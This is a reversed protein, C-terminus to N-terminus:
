ATLISEIADRLPGIKFPKSLVPNSVRQLFARTDPSVTDGTIFIMRRALAPDKARVSRYFSAGDMGPMKMDTIIIDFSAQEVLEQAELGSSALSVDHRDLVLIDHLLARISEEDDVVLVRQGGIRDTTATGSGNGPAAPEPEEPTGIPLEIRFIAGGGPVNEAWIRGGHEEIIGYCITLGLGTGQGAEKTTFFPDFIRRQIEAPVGPGDDQISIEVGDVTPRTVVTLKGRGHADIMAQEANKIVNFFVQQIQDADVSVLPLRDLTMDLEISRITFDYSRLELVRQLLANVDAMEKASKRRRAFSLLNQVIKAAREAEGYITQVQGRVTDDLDRALVLQAFGMVGTLPNNLEHAVGSVLQGVSAMKESQLLREQLLREETSDRLVVLGGSGTAVAAITLYRSEPAQVVVRRSVPEGSAASEDLAALIEAPAPGAETYDDFLAVLRSAEDNLLGVQQSGDVTLVGDGVSGVLSVLASPASPSASEAPALPLGAQELAMSLAQAIRYVAAAGALLDSTDAYAVRILGRIGGDVVIPADQAPALSCDVSRGRLAATLTVVSGDRVHPLAGTLSRLRSEAADLLADIGAVGAPAVAYRRLSGDEAFVLGAASVPSVADIAAISIEILGTNPSKGSGAAPTGTSEALTM